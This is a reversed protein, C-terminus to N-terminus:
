PWRGTGECAPCQELIWPDRIPVGTPTVVSGSGDCTLCTRLVQHYRVAAWAGLREGLRELWSLGHGAAWIELDFGYGAVRYLLWARM